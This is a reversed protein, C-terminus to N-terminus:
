RECPRLNRAGTYIPSSTTAVTRTVSTAGSFARTVKAQSQEASPLVTSSPSATIITSRRLGRWYALDFTPRHINDAEPPLHRRREFARDQGDAIEVADMATVLRHQRLRHADGRILAQARARDQELRM